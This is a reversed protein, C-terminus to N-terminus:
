SGNLTPPLVGLDVCKRLGVIGVIAAAQQANLIFCEDSANPAAEISVAGSTLLDCAVGNEILGAVGDVTLKRPVRCPGDFPIGNAAASSIIAVAQRLSLKRSVKPFRVTPRAIFQGVPKVVVSDM